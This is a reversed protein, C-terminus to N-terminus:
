RCRRRQVQPHRAHGHSLSTTSILAALRGASSVEYGLALAARQSVKGRPPISLHVQANGTMGIAELFDHREVAIADPQRLEAPEATMIAVVPDEEANWARSGVQLERGPSRMGRRVWM